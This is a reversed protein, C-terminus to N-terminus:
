SKNQRQEVNLKALESLFDLAKNLDFGEQVLIDQYDGDAWFEVIVDAGNEYNFIAWDKMIRVKAMIETGRAILSDPLDDADM